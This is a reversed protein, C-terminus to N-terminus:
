PQLSPEADNGKVAAPGITVAVRVQELQAELLHRADSADLGLLNM